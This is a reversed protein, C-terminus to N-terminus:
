RLTSKENHVQRAKSKKNLIKPNERVRSIPIFQTPGVCYPYRIRSIKFKGQNYQNIIETFEFKSVKLEKHLVENQKNLLRTQVRAAKRRDKM